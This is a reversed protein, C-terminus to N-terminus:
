KKEEFDGFSDFPWIRVLARGVILDEEVPGVEEYRSDYSIERNDGMLFYQNNGLTLPEGAIGQFTIPDKGYDEKLIKGDIYITEGIIQITEGPLGIVRKVYYENVEKGYPYFVVVDFRDPKGVLYSVKEVLLNDKDHLTSEMSSGSVITRQIVFRPIVLVCVALILIDLLLEKFFGKKDNKDNKENIEINENIEKNENELGDTTETYTNTENRLEDNEMM